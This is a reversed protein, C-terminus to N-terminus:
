RSSRSVCGMIDGSAFAEGLGRGSLHGTFVASVDRAACRGELARRYPGDGVFVLISQARPRPPLAAVADILFTLNKEPSLRGVSLIIVPDSDPSTIVPFSASHAAAAAAVWQQRLSV